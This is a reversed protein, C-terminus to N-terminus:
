FQYRAGVPNFPNRVRNLNVDARMSALSGVSAAVAGLTKRGAVAQLFVHAGVGALSGELTGVYIEARGVAKVRQPETRATHM